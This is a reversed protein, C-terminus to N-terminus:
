ESVEDRQDGLMRARVGDWAARADAVDFQITEIGAERAGAVNGPQDDVFLVEDAAVGLDALAQSYARPDPKLIGTRSADTLSDFLRFFEIRETWAPGHFAELDNTLVGVKLGAERVATVVAVAESRVIEAEPRDYMVAMYTRLSFARGTARGIEAARRHWYERETLRGEQMDRWLEDTAPDFPGMWALTGPALGLKAEVGRHLEFPTPLCVGGLDLLLATPGNGSM